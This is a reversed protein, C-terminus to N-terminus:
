LSYESGWTLMFLTNDQSYNPSIALDKIFTIATDILSVQNWAIGGDPTYSFASETGSTATYAKGSHTFGDAM